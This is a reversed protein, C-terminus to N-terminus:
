LQFLNERIQKRVGDIGDIWSPLDPDTQIPRVVDGSAIDSQDNFIVTGANGGFIDLTDKLREEGGLFVDAGAEAKPDCALDQFPVSSGNAHDSAVPFFIGATRRENDVQRKM